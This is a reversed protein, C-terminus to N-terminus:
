AAVQRSDAFPRWLLWQKFTVLPHDRVYEAFEVAYGNAVRDAEELQRRREDRYDDVMALRRNPWPVRRTM